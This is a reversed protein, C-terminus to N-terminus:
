RGAADASGRRGSCPLCGAERFPVARGPSWAEACTAMGPQQDKSRTSDKGFGAAGGARRRSRSGLSRFEYSEVALLAPPSLPSRHRGNAQAASSGTTPSGPGTKPSFRGPRSQAPTSNCALLSFRVQSEFGQFPADFLPGTGLDELDNSTFEPCSREGIVIGHYRPKPKQRRGEGRVRRRRCCRLRPRRSLRTEAISATASWSSQRRRRCRPSNGCAM